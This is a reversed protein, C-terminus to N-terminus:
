FFEVTLAEGELLRGGFRIGVKYSLGEVKPGTDEAKREEGSFIEKGRKVEKPKRKAVKVGDVGRDKRKVDESEFLDKAVDKAADNAIQRYELPTLVSAGGRPFAAEENRSVRITTSSQAPETKKATAKPSPAASSSPKALKGANAASRKKKKTEAQQSSAADADQPRKRKKESVM